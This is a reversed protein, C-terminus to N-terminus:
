ADAGVAEALRELDRRLRGRGRGPPGDADAVRRDDHVVAWVPLGLVEAVVGPHIGAARGVRVVLGAQGALDLDAILASAASVSWAAAGVVIVTRAGPWGEAGRPIGTGCDAVVVEHTRLLSAVVARAASAPVVGGSPSSSGVGSGAGPREAGVSEVGSGLGRRPTSARTPPSADRAVLDVGSVNPLRGVLSEVRGSAQRLHSWRWGPAELAGFVLDLGPGHEDLEVCASPGRVAAVQALGAAVTTTGVGGSGGVVRVLLGGGQAAGADLASAIMGGRDPLSVVSAGLPVSWSVLTQIDGGVLHVGSRPALGLGLVTAAKDIGVLVTPARRWARRLAADDAPQEVLCTISAAVALIAESISPDGTM